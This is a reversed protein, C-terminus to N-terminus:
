ANLLISQRGVWSEGPALTKPANIRAAEVCLMHEWDEDPMDALAACKDPGPNWIVADPLNDSGIDLVRSGDRLRLDGVQAYIRDIEGAFRKEPNDELGEQGHVNDQFHRGMLGELRVHQLSRLGLYTHLAAAFPWVTKGTNEIYLELDLQHGSVAVTLEMQFQHPWIARTQENDRLVMTVQAHERGTRVSEVEWNQLRAFGHRPLSRDPGRQEFQPFIVPIGGRVAQGEGYRADASLYLQEGGSAPIWSVVQGGHLLVTAQAGEPSQIRVAPQGQFDILPDSM